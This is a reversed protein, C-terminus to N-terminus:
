ATSCCTDVRSNVSYVIGRVAASGTSFRSLPYYRLWSLGSYGAAQRGERCSPIGQLTGAGPSRIIAVSHVGIASRFLIYSHVQAGRGAFHRRRCLVPFQALLRHHSAPVAASLPSHLPLLRAVCYATVVLEFHEATTM